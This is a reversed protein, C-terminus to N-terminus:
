TSSRARTFGARAPIIGAVAAREEPVGLLGRALPSSGGRPPISIHPLLYVGRSRPHDPRGSRTSRRGATFGARAPIIRVYLAEGGERRRLGRALPSSGGFWEGASRGVWYVGRSRPHDTTRASYAGGSSTFGARAPIIRAPPHPRFGGGLLGRALPSSGWRSRRSRVTGRTFGARAPIIGTITPDPDGPGRLGRALPSSGLNSRRTGSSTSYVGRSRPHDPSGSNGAGSEPTFGARAPIIGPHGVAVIRRHPLGRALPSSGESM